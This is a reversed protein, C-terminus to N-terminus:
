LLPPSNIVDQRNRWRTWLWTIKLLVCVLQMRVDKTIWAFLHLVALWFIVYLFAASELVAQWECPCYIWWKQECDSSCVKSIRKRASMCSGNIYHCYCAQTLFYLSPKQLDGAVSFFFFFSHICYHLIKTYTSRSELNSNCLIVVSCEGCHVLFLFM